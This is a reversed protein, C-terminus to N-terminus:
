FDRPVEDTLGTRVVLAAYLSAEVAELADRVRAQRGPELRQIHAKVQWLAEKATARVGARFGKDHESLAPSEGQRNTAGSM